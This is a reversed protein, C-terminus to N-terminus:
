IEEEDSEYYDDRMNHNRTRGFKSSEASEDVRSIAPKKEKKRNALVQLYGAPLQLVEDLNDVISMGRAVIEEHSDLRPYIGTTQPNQLSNAHSFKTNHFFFHKSTEHGPALRKSGEYTGNLREINLM